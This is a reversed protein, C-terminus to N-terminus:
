RPIEAEPPVQTAMPPFVKRCMFWGVKKSGDYPLIGLGKLILLAALWRVFRCYNCCIYIHGVAALDWEGSPL